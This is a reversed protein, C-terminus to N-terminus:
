EEDLPSSEATTTLVNAWEPPITPFNFGDVNVYIFETDLCDSVIEPNALSLQAKSEVQEKVIPNIYDEYERSFAVYDQYIYQLPIFIKDNGVLEHMTKTLPILGVKGDYHLEMVEDAIAFISMPLGEAERKNVVAEVIAHMSFPEHHMEITYRKGHSTDLGKLVTCRNMDMHTKLFKMYEKYEMSHRCFRECKMIFKSKDKPTRFVYVPREPLEDISLQITRNPRDRMGIKMRKKDYLIM